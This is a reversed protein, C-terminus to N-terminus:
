GRFILTDEIDFRHFISTMGTYAFLQSTAYYNKITHAIHSGLGRGRWKKKVWLECTHKNDGETDHIVLGYGSLIEDHEIYFVRGTAEQRRCQVLSRRMDGLHRYNNDYLQVFLERDICHVLNKRIKLKEM